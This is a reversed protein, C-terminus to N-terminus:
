KIMGAFHKYIRETKEASDSEAIIRFVPETNSSRLHVWGNKFDDNKRFDIRLGDIQSMKEDKFSETVSMLIKTIDTGQKLTVKGKKMYYAPMDKMIDSIKKNRSAMM